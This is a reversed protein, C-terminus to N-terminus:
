IRKAFKINLYKIYKQVDQSPPKPHKQLKRPWTGFKERFKHAAWGQSYGKAQAHGLFGSYWEQKDAMSARTIKVLEGEEHEVKNQRQPAFGCSPCAHVGPEKMTYCKPCAKREPPKAEAKKKEGPRTTDLNIPLTEDTPFGHREVNGGHDLIIADSKNPAIRLARGIQQIHVILSKTPRAMILTGTEPADFGKTLIDVCSVLKIEGEKYKRLVNKREQKDTYADIHVANVGVKQFESAIHKSHEINVGFCITPNDEGYRRWTDVVSGVPRDRNVREALKKLNYDGGSLPIGKLDPPPPAYVVFDSLYGQTILEKTTAGVVLSQWYLGLGKTYPTASLGIYALNNWKDMMHLQTKYMSHFEDVIALHFDPWRRRALTQISAIQVPKAYNTRWHDAQIVGHDIDHQDFVESTQDILDIRDAIFVVRNGKSVASEIIAKAIHTKGAGTPLQIGIRRDGARFRERLANITDQQYVRLTM